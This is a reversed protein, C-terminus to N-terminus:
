RGGSHAFFHLALLVLGMAVTVPLDKLVLWVVITALLFPLSLFRNVFRYRRWFHQKQNASMQSYRTRLAPWGVLEFEQPLQGDESTARNWRTISRSVVVGLVLLAFVVFLTFYNGYESPFDHVNNGLKGFDM